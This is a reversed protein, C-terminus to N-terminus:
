DGPQNVFCVFLCFTEICVRNSANFVSEHFGSEYRCLPGHFTVLEVDSRHRARSCANACGARAESQSFHRAVLKKEGNIKKEQWCDGGDGQIVKRDQSVVLGLLWAAQQM